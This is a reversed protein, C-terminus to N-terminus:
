CRDVQIALEDNARHGAPSVASSIQDTLSVQHLQRGGHFRTAIPARGWHRHMFSAASVCIGIRKQTQKQGAVKFFEGFGVHSVFIRITSLYVLVFTLRSEKGPEIDKKALVCADLYIADAEALM